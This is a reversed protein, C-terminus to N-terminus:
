NADSGKQTGPLREAWTYNPLDGTESLSFHTRPLAWGGREILGVIRMKSNWDVPFSDGTVTGQLCPSM